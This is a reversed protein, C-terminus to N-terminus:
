PILFVISDLTLNSGLVLSNENLIIDTGVNFDAVPVGNGNLLRAWTAEGTKVVTGELTPKLRIHDEASSQLCPKPLELKVLKADDNVTSTISPPKPNDYIIFCAATDGQDIFSAIAVLQAIGVDRSPIIM